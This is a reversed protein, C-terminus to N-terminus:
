DELLIDMAENIRRVEAVIQEISSNNDHVIERLGQDWELHVVQQLLNNQQYLAEPGPPGGQNPAAVNPRNPSMIQKPYVPNHPINHQGLQLQQQDQQQQARQGFSVVEEDLMNDQIQQHLLMNNQQREGVPLAPLEKVTHPEVGFKPEPVENTKHTEITQNFRARKVVNLERDIREIQDLRDVM